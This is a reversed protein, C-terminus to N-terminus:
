QEAAGVRVEVESDPAVKKGASPDQWVVKDVNERSGKVVGTVKVKLKVSDLKDKADKKSLHLVNPVEVQGQSASGSGAAQGKTATSTKGRELLWVTLGGALLVVIVAAAIWWPFRRPAQRKAVTFAVTPGETYDEDPNQVSVADLRFTYKGEKGGPPVAVAVSFRQAGSVPFDREPEGSVKLWDKQSPDQPVLKARGRLYRGSTNSVTFAVEGRQQADLRVTSSGSTINFVSAM